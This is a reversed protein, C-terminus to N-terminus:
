GSELKISHVNAAARCRGARRVALLGAPIEGRPGEEADTSKLHDSPVHRELSFSCFCIRRDEPVGVNREILGSQVEIACRVADV